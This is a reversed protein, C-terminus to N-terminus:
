LGLTELVSVCYRRHTAETYIIHLMLHRDCWQAALVSAREDQSSALLEEEHVCTDHEIDYITFNAGFAICLLKEQSNFCMHFDSKLDINENVIEITKWNKYAIPAAPVLKHLSLNLPGDKVSAIVAMQQCTGSVALNKIKPKSTKTGRLEVFPQEAKASPLASFTSGNVQVDIWDIPPGVAMADIRSKVAQMQNNRRVTLVYMETQSYPMFGIEHIFYPIRILHQKIWRARKDLTFIMYDYRIGVVMHTSDHSFSAPNTCFPLSLGHTHAEESREDDSSLDSYNYPSNGGEDEEDNRACNIANHQGDHDFGELQFNANYLLPRTDNARSDLPVCGIKRNQLDVMTLYPTGIETEAAVLWRGNNSLAVQFLFHAASRFDTRGVVFPVEPLSSEPIDRFLRGLYTQDRAGSKSSPHDKVLLSDLKGNLMSMTPLM